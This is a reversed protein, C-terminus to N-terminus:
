IELKSLSIFEELLERSFILWETAGDFGNFGASEYKKHFMRELNFILDGSSNEYLEIL